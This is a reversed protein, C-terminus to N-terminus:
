RKIYYSIIAFLLSIKDISYIILKYIVVVIFCIIIFPYMIAIIILDANQDHAAIAKYGKFKCFAAFIIGIVLYSIIITIQTM